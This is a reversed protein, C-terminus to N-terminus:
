LVAWSSPGGTGAAYEGLPVTGARWADLVPLASATFFPLMRHAVVVYVPVVFWWLGLLAALRPSSCGLLPSGKM